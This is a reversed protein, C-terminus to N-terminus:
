AEQTVDRAEGEIVVAPPAGTIFQVLINLSDSGRDKRQELIQIAKLAEKPGVRGPSALANALGLDRFAELVETNSSKRIDEVSLAGSQRVMEAAQILAMEGTRAHKQHAYWTPRSFSLGYKAAEEQAEKANWGKGSKGGERAGLIFRPAEPHACISCYGPQGYGAPM